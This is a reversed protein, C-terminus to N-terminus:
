ENNAGSNVMVANNPVIIQYNGHVSVGLTEVSRRTQYSGHGPIGLTEYRGSTRTKKTGFIGYDMSRVEYKMSGRLMM